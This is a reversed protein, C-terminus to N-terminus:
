RSGNSLEVGVTPEFRLQEAGFTVGPWHSTKKIDQELGAHFTLGSLARLFSFFFYYYYYYYIFFHSTCICSYHRFPSKLAQKDSSNEARGSISIVFM